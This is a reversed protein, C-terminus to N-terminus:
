FICGEILILYLGLLVILTSIIFRIYFLINNSFKQAGIKLLRIFFLFWLVEGIVIGLLVLLYFYNEFDYNDYYPDYYAYHLDYINQNTIKAPFGISRTYSCGDPFIFMSISVMLFFLVYRVKILKFINEM